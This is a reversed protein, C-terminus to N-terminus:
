KVVIKDTYTNGNNFRITIFYVGNSLNSVDINECDNDQSIVRRGDISHITVNTCEHEEAFKLMLKDDVPNPYLEYYTNNDSVENVEESVSKQGFKLPYYPITCYAMDYVTGTYKKIESDYQYKVRVWGYYVDDNVCHKLGINCMLYTGEFYVMWYRWDWYNIQSITSTDHSCEGIKWNEHAEIQDFDGGSLSIKVFDFDKVSDCNIDFSVRRTSTIPFITDPEFDTYIIGGKEQSFLTSSLLCVFVSLLLTKIKM